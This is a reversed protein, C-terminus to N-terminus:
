IIVEMGGSTDERAQAMIRQFDFNSITTGFKVIKAGPKFMYQWFGPDDAVWWEKDRYCYYNGFAVIAWGHDIADFKICIVNICPADEPTGQTNDFTTDDAYYIRWKIEM